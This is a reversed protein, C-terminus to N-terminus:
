IGTEPEKGDPRALGIPAGDLSTPIIQFQGPGLMWSIECSFLSGAGAPKGWQVEITNAALFAQYTGAEAADLPSSFYTTGLAGWGQPLAYLRRRFVSAADGMSCRFSVLRGARRIAMAGVTQGPAAEPDHVKSLIDRWGSDYDLVIWAAGDWVEVLRDTVNPRTVRTEPQNAGINGLRVWETGTYTYYDGNTTNVYFDGKRGPTAGTPSGAGNLWKTSFAGPDKFFAYKLDNLTDSLGM